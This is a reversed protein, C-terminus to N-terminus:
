AATGRPRLGGDDINRNGYPESIEYKKLKKELSDQPIRPNELCDQAIKPM